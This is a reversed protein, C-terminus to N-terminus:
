AFERWASVMIQASVALVIHMGYFGAAYVLTLIEMGRWASPFVVWASVVVAAVAILQSVLVDHRRLAIRTLAFVALGVAQPTIVRLILAWLM